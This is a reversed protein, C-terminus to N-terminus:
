KRKKELLHAEQKCTSADGCHKPFKVGLVKHAGKAQLLQVLARELLLIVFRVAM